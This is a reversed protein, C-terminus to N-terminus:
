VVVVQLVTVVVFTGTAVQEAEDAVDALRHVVVVQLVLLVVWTGTAEQVAEPALEDFL